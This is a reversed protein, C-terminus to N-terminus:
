VNFSVHAKPGSLCSRTFAAETKQKEDTRLGFFDVRYLVMPRELYAPLEVCLWRASLFRGGSARSGLKRHRDIGSEHYIILRGEEGYVGMM